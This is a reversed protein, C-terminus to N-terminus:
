RKTVRPAKATGHIKVRIKGRATYSSIAHRILSSFSNKYRDELQGSFALDLKSQDLAKRNLQVTGSLTGTIDGQSQIDTRLEDKEIAISGAINKFTTSPAEIALGTHKKDGSVTAGELLFEMQGGPTSSLVFNGKGSLTPNSQVIHTNRLTLNYNPQVDHVHFDTRTPFFRLVGEIEGRYLAISYPIGWNALIRFLNFSVHATDIKVIENQFSKDSLRIESLALGGFGPVATRIEAHLARPLAGNIQLAIWPTLRQPSLHVWVSVAFLLGFGFVTLFLLLIRKIM